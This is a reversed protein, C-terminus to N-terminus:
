LPKVQFGRLWTLINIYGVHGISAVIMTDFSQGIVPPCTSIIKTVCFTVMAVIYCAVFVRLKLKLLKYSLFSSPAGM